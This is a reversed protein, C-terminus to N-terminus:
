ELLGALQAPTAELPRVRVRKITMSGGVLSFTNAFIVPPQTGSPFIPFSWSTRYPPLSIPLSRCGTPGLLYRPMAGIVPASALSNHIEYEVEVVRPSDASVGPPAPVTFWTPGEPDREICGSDCDVTRWTEPKRSWVSFRNQATPLADYNLLMEEYFQWTSNRLWPEWGFQSTKFTIVFDPQSERFAALYEARRIPGLAHIAYDCYPHFVGYHDEVRGAYTSWIVPARTLNRASRVADIAQTIADLEAQREPAMRCQGGRIIRFERSVSRIRDTAQFLSSGDQAAPGAALFMLIGLGLLRRLGRRLPEM